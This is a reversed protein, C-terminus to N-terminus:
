NVPFNGHNQSINLIEVNTSYVNLLYTVRAANRITFDSFLKFVSVTNNVGVNAAERAVGM